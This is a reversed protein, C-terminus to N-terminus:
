PKNPLTDAFESIAWCLCGLEVSKMFGDKIGLKINIPIDLMEEFGPKSLIQWLKKPLADQLERYKNDFPALGTDHKGVYIGTISGAKEGYGWGIKYECNGCKTLQPPVDKMEARISECECSLNRSPKCSFDLGM